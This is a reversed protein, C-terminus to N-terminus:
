RGSLPKPQHPQNEPHYVHNSRYVELTLHIPIVIFEAYVINMLVKKTRIPRM